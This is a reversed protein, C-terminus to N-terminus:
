RLSALADALAAPLERVGDGGAAADLDALRAILDAVDRRAIPGGAAACFHTRCGFPRADYAICAGNEDLLPCAGDSRAALEKRGRARVAKALLL